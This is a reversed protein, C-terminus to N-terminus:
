RRKSRTREFSKPEAKEESKYEEYLGDLYKALTVDFHSPKHGIDWTTLWVTITNWINEWDPHHDLQSIYRSSTSMFHIADEFSAFEYTRMLELKNRREPSVRSDDLEWATLRRLAKKLEQDTLSPAKPGPAPYKIKAAKRKFGLDELRTLLPVIDTERQENRLEFDRRKLLPRLTAPLGKSKPLPANLVRVPIITLKTQISREIEKRVWDNPDDIRRRDIDDLQSLWTPGIVAILVSAGRLAQQIRKPWEEGSEIGSTDIFVSAKGFNQAITEALWRAMQWSDARRYSIFVSKVLSPSM